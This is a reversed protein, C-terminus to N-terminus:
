ASTQHLYHSKVQGCVVCDSMRHTAKQFSHPTIEKGLMEARLPHRLKRISEEFMQGVRTRSLDMDRAIESLLEPPDGDLGYKRVVVQRHRAELSDVCFNLNEAIEKNQYYLEPTDEPAILRSIEELGVYVQATRKTLPHWEHQSPIIDEPLCSLIEAVKLVPARWEGNRTRGPQTLNAIYGLQTQHIGTRRSLDAVTVIGQREMMAMLLGNKVRIDIRYDTM